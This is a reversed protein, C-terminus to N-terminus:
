APAMIQEQAEVTLGEVEPSYDDSTLSYSSKDLSGAYQSVRLIAGDRKWSVITNTFKAGARNQLEETDKKDPPGYTASLATVVDNFASSSLSTSAHMLRHSFFNFDFSTARHGAIDSLQTRPDRDGIVTACFLDADTQKCEWFDKFVGKETAATQMPDNCHLEPYKTRLEEATSGIRLGKFQLPDAAHVGSASLLLAALAAPIIHDRAM